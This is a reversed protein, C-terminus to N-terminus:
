GNTTFRIVQKLMMIGFVQADYKMYNVVDAAVNRAETNVYNYYYCTPQGQLIDGNELLILNDGYDKRLNNVYSSVRWPEQKQSVTSSITLFFSGHVDNTEIVRLKVTRQQAMAQSNFTLALLLAAFLQKMNILTNDKSYHFGM